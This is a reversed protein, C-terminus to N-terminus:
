GKNNGVIKDALKTLSDLASETVLVANAKIFDYSGVKDWEKMDVDRVNRSARKVDSYHSEDKSCVILLPREDIGLSKIAHVFNKTKGDKAEPLKKEVILEDQKAVFAQILALRKAKKPLALKYRKPSPGHIIGGGVWLPSRISGARARGTGKQVWPKTGGGRVEARTKVSATGARGNNLQRLVSYHLLHINPKLKENSFVDPLNYKQKKSSVPQKTKQLM